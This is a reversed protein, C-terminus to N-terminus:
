PVAELAERLASRLAGDHDAIFREVRETGGDRLDSPTALVVHVGADHGGGLRMAALRLKAELDSAVIREGLQYWHFVDVNGRPGAFRKFFVRGFSLARTGQELLTWDKGDGPGQPQARNNWSVLERGEVQNAYLDLWLGVPGSATGYVAHGAARAGSSSPQYGSPLDGSRQWGPAPEPLVLETVFPGDHPALKHEALLAVACIAGLAVLVHLRTASWPPVTWGDTMRLAHEMDRWRSGIWFMALIVIGFFVWGYILHDVGVALRNGSLYGIMVIIYARLWNAVIPLAIAFACFIARKRLNSYTLYAFLTGVMFSAILYRVGSCAEVVSWNGNPLVFHLGEQYVPIGSARVAFVTFKATFEMLPPVVFEGMPVAFFLFGIPFALERALHTGLVCWLGCALIGIAALHLAAASSTVGGAVWLLAFGAVAPLALATPVPASGHWPRRQWVVWAVIPLVVWGHAFTGSRSWIGAMQEIAPWFAAAWAALFVPVVAWRRDVSGAPVEPGKRPAVSPRAAAPAGDAGEAGDHM